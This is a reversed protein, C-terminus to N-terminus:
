KEALDIHIRRASLLNRQASEGFKVGSGTRKRDSVLPEERRHRNREIQPWAGRQAIGYIGHCRRGRLDPKRWGNLRLEGAGCLGVLGRKGGLGDQNRRGEDGKEENKRHAVLAVEM